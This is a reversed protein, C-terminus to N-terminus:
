VCLKHSGYILVYCYRQLSNLFQREAYCNRRRRETTAERTSSRGKQSASLKDAVCSVKAGKISGSREDGHEYFGV